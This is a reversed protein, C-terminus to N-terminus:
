PRVLKYLFAARFMKIVTVVYKPLSTSIDSPCIGLLPIAPVVSNEGPINNTFHGEM